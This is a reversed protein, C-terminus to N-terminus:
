SSGETSREAFRRRNVVFRIVRGRAIEGVADSAEVEFTLQRDAVAAVVARVRVERGIPTARLHDVEVRTGVSTDGPDLAGAVAAVTAAECWAILRPTALVEVDGSGLAIATDDATVLHTLDASAGVDPTM